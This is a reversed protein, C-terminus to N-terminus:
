SGMDPDHREVKGIVLLEGEDGKQGSGDRVIPNDGTV